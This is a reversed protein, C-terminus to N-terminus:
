RRRAVPGLVLGELAHILREADRSDLISSRALRHQVATAYTARMADFPLCALVRVTALMAEGLVPADLAMPAPQPNTVSNHFM